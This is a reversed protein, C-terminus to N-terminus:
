VASQGPEILTGNGSFRIELVHDGRSSVQRPSVFIPTEPTEPLHLWFWVMPGKHNLLFTSRLCMNLMVQVANLSVQFPVRLLLVYSLQLWRTLQLHLAPLGAGWRGTPPQSLSNPCLFGSIAGVPQLIPRRHSSKLYLKLICILPEQAM